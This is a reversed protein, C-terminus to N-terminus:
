SKGLNDEVYRWNMLKDLIATAYDLRRNQYDLYYAHEWVDLVALPVHMDGSIPTDANGTKILSLKKSGKDLVLWVWGSGFQGTSATLFARRFDDFSGFSDDIRSVLEAGPKGGGKPSLSNWYFTHNWTQAANNFIAAKDAKGASERVIEVLSRGELPTGAILKNLADVYGKHHKAYHFGVTNGSIVPDLASQEWPLKPLEILSAGGAANAALIGGSLSTAGLAAAAVLFGRRDINM